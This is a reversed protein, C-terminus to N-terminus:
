EPFGLKRLAQIQRELDDRNKFPLLRKTFSISIRPNLRLTEKAEARAEKMRGMEVYVAALLRHAGFFRPNRAISAKLEKVAEEHRNLYFLCMGAWFPYIYPEYRSRARAQQIYKLGEGPKGAFMHADGLRALVEGKSPDLKLAREMSRLARDHERRWLYASGLQMHATPLTPDIALAKNAM